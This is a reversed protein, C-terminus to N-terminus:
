EVIKSKEDCFRDGLTVGIAIFLILTGNVIDGVFFLVTAATLLGANTLILIFQIVPASLFNGIVAQFQVEKGWSVSRVISRSYSCLTGLCILGGAMGIDFIEIWYGVVATFLLIMGFSAISQTFEPSEISTNPTKKIINNAM